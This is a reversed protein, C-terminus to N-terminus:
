RELEVRGETRNKETKPAYGPKFYEMYFDWRSLSLGYGIMVERTFKGTSDTFGELNYSTKEKDGAKVVVKVRVSDLPQQTAKDVVTVSYTKPGECSVLILALFLIAIKYTKM